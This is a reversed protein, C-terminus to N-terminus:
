ALLAHVNRKLVRFTGFHKKPVSSTPLCAFRLRLCYRFWINHIYIKTAPLREFTRWLVKSNRMYSSMTKSTVNMTMFGNAPKKSVDIAKRQPGSKAKNAGCFWAPYLNHLKAKGTHM